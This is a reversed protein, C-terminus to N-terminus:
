FSRVARVNNSNSQNSNYQTGDDFDQTSAFDVDDAGSSWYLEKKFGGIKNKMLYLINLEKKNPLRWDTYGNISLNKCKQIAMYWNMQGLLDSEAVVLGHGNNESVVIGGGKHNTEMLTSPNETRQQSNGIQSSTSNIDQKQGNNIEPTRAPTSDTLAADNSSTHRETNYNWIVIGACISVLMTVIALLTKRNVNSSRKEFEDHELLRSNLGDIEKKILNIEDQKDIVAKNLSALVNNKEILKTKKIGLEKLLSNYEQTRQFDEKRKKIEAEEAARQEPTQYRKKIEEETKRLQEKHEAEKRRLQDEYERNRRGLEEEFDRRLKEEYTKDGYQKKDSYQNNLNYDYAKKRDATSLIDYAEQIEKFREEWFKDGNNKDPHFKLALKYYASKIQDANANRGIGLIYYYDKM